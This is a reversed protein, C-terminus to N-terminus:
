ATTAWHYRIFLEPTELVGDWEFDDVYLHYMQWECPNPVDISAFRKLYHRISSCSAQDNYTLAPGLKAAAESGACAAVFEALEEFQNASPYRRCNVNIELSEESAFNDFEFQDFILTKVVGGKSVSILAHVSEV